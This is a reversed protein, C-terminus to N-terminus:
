WSISHQTIVCLDTRCCTIIRLMYADLLLNLFRTFAFNNSTCFFSSYVLV